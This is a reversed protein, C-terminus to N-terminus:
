EIGSSSDHGVGDNHWKVTRFQRLGSQRNRVFESSREVRGDHKESRTPSGGDFFQDAVEVILPGREGNRELTGDNGVGEGRGGNGVGDIGRVVRDDHACM